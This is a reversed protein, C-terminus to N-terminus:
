SRACEIMVQAYQANAIASPKAISLCLKEIRYDQMIQKALAQAFTEILNFHKSQAVEEAMKALLVYDITSSLEDDNIKQDNRLSIEINLILKQKANKEHKYVGINALIELEKINIKFTQNFESAVKITADVAGDNNEVAKKRRIYMGPRMVVGLQEITSTKM